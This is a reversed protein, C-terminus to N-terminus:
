IWNQCNRLFGIKVVKLFFRAKVIKNKDFGIKVIEYFDLKSSNKLFGIKVIKM